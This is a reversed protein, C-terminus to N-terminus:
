VFYSARLWSIADSSSPNALMLVVLRHQWLVRRYRLRRSKTVAVHWVWVRIFIFSRSMRLAMDFAHMSAAETALLRSSFAARLVESHDRHESFQTFQSLFIWMKMPFLSLVHWVLNKFWILLTPHIIVYSNLQRIPVLPEKSSHSAFSNHKNNEETFAISNRLLQNFKIGGNVLNKRQIKVKGSKKARAPDLKIQISGKPNWLTGNSDLRDIPSLSSFGIPYWHSELINKYQFGIPWHSVRNFLGIPIWNIELQGEFPNELQHGM